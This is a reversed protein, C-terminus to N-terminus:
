SHQCYTVQVKFTDSVGDQVAKIEITFRIYKGQELPNSSQYMSSTSNLNLTGLLSWDGTANTYLKLNAIEFASPNLADTISINYDYSTNDTVNNKLFLAETFIVLTNNEVNLSVTAISGAITADADAGEIWVLKLTGVTVTGHIEMYRVVAASATAILLSSILLTAFKLTRKYNIKM